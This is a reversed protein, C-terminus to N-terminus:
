RQGGPAPPVAGEPWVVVIDVRRNRMRHAESDNPAVPRYEGYGAASLRQPAIGSEEILFRVVRAARATSLEWNSPFRGSTIPLDDTHGEVQIAHPIGALVGGLRQLIQRAEPKLEARGLDFLVGELFRVLLGRETIVVEAQGLGEMALAEMVRQRLVERQDVGGATSGLGTEGLATADLVGAADSLSKGGPLVGLSGQLAGMLARFKQVDINSYSYLLIFFTLILTVM